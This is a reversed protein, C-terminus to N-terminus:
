AVTVFSEWPQPHRFRDETYSAHAEAEAKTAFWRPRFDHTDDQWLDDLEQFLDAPIYSQDGVQLSPAGGIIQIREPAIEVVYSDVDAIHEPEDEGGWIADFYVGFGRRFRYERPVTVTFEENSMERVGVKERDREM